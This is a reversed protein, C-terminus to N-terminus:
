TIRDYKDVYSLLHRGFLVGCFACFNACFASVVRCVVDDYHHLWEGRWCHPNSSDMGSSPRAAKRMIKGVGGDVRNLLNM